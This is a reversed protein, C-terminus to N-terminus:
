PRRVRRSRILYRDTPLRFDKPALGPLRFTQWTPGPEIWRRGGPVEMALPMRFDSVETRWRCTLLLSSGTEELSYELVPLDPYVLYQEFFADYSRGTRENVLGIFDDTRVISHAHQQYFDRLINWWLTDSRLTHRLTHLMWAGKYYHDSGNWDDWNVDAPGLIPQQNQIFPRQSRLYRLADDYGLTYEVFVSELYTTFSEHIWMEALDAVSLSNGFYEHGTEHVIIYDWDMDGPILGGLYGRKYQNGYAIASQHEMGLYPTEVLAYGDKWFPYPGLYQEFCALVEQVQRFHDRARPLNDPLVYYDLSLTDGNAPSAYTSQFHVYAAVNLTVNYNNIPYSVFWQYRMMDQGEPWATRLNGNAVAMLGRPVAISIALSDPEDSLHDKNPWWLSAGDGECAVGIWPQGEPDSAWVFGGQWPPNEAVRPRGGYFVRFRGRAGSPQRPFTVFVADHQRQFSLAQGQFLISDLRMNRYLDIQLREFDELARFHIDVYGELSRRAPHLTLHLDYFTVDYCSREPRLMGRLTDAETFKYRHYFDSQACLSLTISLLGAVTLWRGPLALFCSAFSGM